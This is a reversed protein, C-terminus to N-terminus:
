LSSPGITLTVVGWTGSGAASARSSAANGETARITSPTLRESPYPKAGSHRRAVFSPLNSARRQTSSPSRTAPVIDVGPAGPSEGSRHKHTAVAAGHVGVQGQAAEFPRARQWSVEMGELPACVHEASMRDDLEISARVLEARAVVNEEGDAHLVGPSVLRVLLSAPDFQRGGLWQQDAPPFLVGEEGWWHFARRRAGTRGSRESGRTCFM